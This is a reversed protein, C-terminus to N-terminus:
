ADTPQRSLRRRAEVGFADPLRGSEWEPELSVGGEAEIVPARRQGPYWVSPMQGLFSAWQSFSSGSGVLASASAMALLDTAASVAAHMRTRPEALLDKLEAADGDSFVIAPTDEGIASRVARLAGVYWTTAIQYNHRGERLERDSAAATFDGRRVHVAVFPERQSAPVYAPRLMTRLERRLLAHEGRLPAFSPGIGRFVHVGRASPPTDLTSPEPLQPLGALCAAREINRAIGSGRFLLFYARKDRERRLYPGIRIRLWIPPLM